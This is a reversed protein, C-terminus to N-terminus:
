TRQEATNTRLTELTKTLLLRRSQDDDPFVSRLTDDM